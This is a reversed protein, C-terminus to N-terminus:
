SKAVNTVKFIARTQVMINDGPALAKKFMNSASGKEAKNERVCM